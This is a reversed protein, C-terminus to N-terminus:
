FIQTVLDPDHLLINIQKGSIDHFIDAIATRICCVLFHDLCRLKGIGMIKNHFHRFVITRVNSLAAHFKGSALLLTKGNCSGKQFVRRDENKILGSRRQVILALLHHLLRQFTKCLVTCGKHDGVSKGGDAIGSPDQYQCLIPDCFLSGM